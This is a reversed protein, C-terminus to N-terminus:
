VTVPATIIQNTPNYQYYEKDLRYEIGLKVALAKAARRAQRRQKYIHNGWGSGLIQATVLDSGVDSIRGTVADHVNLFFRGGDKNGKNDMDRVTVYTTSM